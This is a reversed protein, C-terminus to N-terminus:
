AAERRYGRLVNRAPGLLLYVWAKLWFPRNWVCQLFARRACAADGKWFHDYGFAFCLQALRGRLRARTPRRGDPGATGWRRVARTVVLYPYNVAKPQHTSNGGHHRYVALPASLKHVEALRSIRLWYDYDQGNRLSEDFEGVQGIIASQILVTSTNLACNLLLDPYIWGSERRDIEGRLPGGARPRREPPRPDHAEPSVIWDTFVLGVEPHEMLYRVQLELKGPLWVDDGDLFAVYDGKAHRL